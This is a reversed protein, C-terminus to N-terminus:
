EKHLIWGNFLGDQVHDNYSLNERIELRFKYRAALEAFFADDFWQEWEEVELLGKAHRNKDIVIVKGGPKTIRLLEKVANEACIAHELAEAVYVIEFMEDEYPIQLLSGQRKEVAAPIKRMVKESIDACSFKITREATDELLNRLYCGKGCGVDCVHLAPAEANLIEELVLRYRGDERGITEYFSDAQEEFELRCRWSLADLFYKVAWSIESDVFYAPYEEADAASVDGKVAYSGYWGGSENQLSCAYRFARNGKELEGLKYWVLAFQFLGTSCVWNVNKYAPISGDARQLAAIKEMAERALESEGIDCLAELVYAYFHSLLGFNLIEERRNELYYRKVRDAAEAYRSVNYIEAATYLPELCYLHILDSCEEAPWMRQDPTTMRGDEEINRLLWDCGRKIPEDVAPDLGRVALLGKLVQATDFVYPAADETDYWSGDGKQILCLWKAYSLALDRYGWRLLTPIYYGTVEPYSKPLATNNIIGEGPISHNLMWAEAKQFIEVYDLSGSLSGKTIKQFMDMFLFFDQIGADELQKALVAAIRSGTSIVIQFDKYIAKLREFSIVPVGDILTGTLAGNNDVFCHVREKGFYELAKRGYVGAGFLIIQKSSDLKLEGRAIKDLWHLYKPLVGGPFFRGRRKWMDWSSYRWMDLFLVEKEHVDARELLFDLKRLRLRHRQFAVERQKTVTLSNGHFRYQYVCKPVHLIPYKQSIRLWYDYDEVLIMDPDYEGVTDLIERRYLFCAGIPDEVYLRDLEPSQHALAIGDEHIYDMDCYVLGYGPHADLARVMIEIAEPAYRNDDSSWTLYEGHAHQFGRNLTRPLKLNVPNTLFHIRSDMEAYKRMIESSGDASCDDVLLLEWDPFTQNVVSEISEALYAEGNYVPIVVSVKPM